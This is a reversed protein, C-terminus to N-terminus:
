MKLITKQCMLALIKDPCRRSNIIPLSPTDGDWFYILTASVACRGFSFPARLRVCKPFTKSIQTAPIAFPNLALACLRLLMSRQIFVAMHQRNSQYFIHKIEIWQIKQEGQRSQEDADPRLDLQGVSVAFVALHCDLGAHRTRLGRAFDEVLGTEGVHRHLFDGSAQAVM